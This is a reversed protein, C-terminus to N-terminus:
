WTKRRFLADGSIPGPGATVLYLFLFSYLAALEGGNIIPFLGRPFHAMFYAVAMEGSLVFAVPRTFLGLLLLLGGGLELCGAFWPLTPFSAIGGKGGMGGFFGLLKQFGHLSFMFAAVIRLLSRAYPQLSALAPM